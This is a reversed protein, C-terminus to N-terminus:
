DRKARLILSPGIRLHRKDELHQWCYGKQNNFSCQGSWVPEAFQLVGWPGGKRLQVTISNSKYYFKYFSPKLHLYKIYQEHAREETVQAGTLERVM